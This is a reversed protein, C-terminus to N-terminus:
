APATFRCGASCHQQLEQRLLSLKREDQSLTTKMRELVGKLENARIRLEKERCTLSWGRCVLVNVSVGVWVMLMVVVHVQGLRDIKRQRCAQAALRNKEKRRDRKTDPSESGSHSQREQQCEPVPAHSLSLPSPM